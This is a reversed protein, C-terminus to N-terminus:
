HSVHMYDDRSLYTGGDLRSTSYNRFDGHRDKVFLIISKCNITKQFMSFAM